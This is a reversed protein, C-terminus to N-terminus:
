GGSVPTGVVEVSYTVTPSTGALTNVARVYTGFTDMTVYQAQLSPGANTVPNFTVVPTWSINDNSTQIVVNSTQGAGGTASSNLIISGNGTFQTLSTSAGTATATITAAAALTIINLPKM